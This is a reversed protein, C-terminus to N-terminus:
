DHGQQVEETPSQLSQEYYQDLTEFSKNFSAFIPEIDTGLAQFDFLFANDATPQAVYFNLDAVNRAMSLDRMTGVFDTSHTAIFLRSGLRQHIFLLLRAYEVIWQPHLHSEPEDLILLTHADLVGNKILMQLISFSKIGTACQLFNIRKGDERVYVFDDFTDDYETRGQIIQAIDDELGSKHDFWENRKEKLWMNLDTWHQYGDSAKIGVCMPTDIYIVKKILAPLPLNRPMTKGAMVAGLEEIKWDSADVCGLKFFGDKIFFSSRTKLDEQAKEIKNFVQEFLAASLDEFSLTDINAKALPSDNSLARQFIRKLRAVRTKDSPPTTAHQRLKKVFTAMEQINKADNQCFDYWASDFQYLADCENEIDKILREFIISEYNNLCKFTKYLLRSLTSKGCGNIGTVVTIGDVQIEAHHIARYSDLTIKIDDKM